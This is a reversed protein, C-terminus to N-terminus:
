PADGCGATEFTSPQSVVRCASVIDDETGVMATAYDVLAVATAEDCHVRGGGRVSARAVGLSVFGGAGVGDDRCPEERGVPMEDPHSM